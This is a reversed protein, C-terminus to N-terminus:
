GHQGGKKSKATQHAVSPTDRHSPKGLSTIRGGSGTKKNAEFLQPMRDLFVLQSRYPRLLRSYRYRNPVIIQQLKGHEQMYDYLSVFDGDGSVFVAQDFSAFLKAAAYLVIDTDVNGKTKIDGASDRFQVVQKFILTFGARQLQEYLQTNGPVLGIFLYAQSVNYKERLYHRFKRFDLRKGHYLVKGEANKVDRATGLNLNQADIFAYTTLTRKATRHAVSSSDGISTKGKSHKDERPNKKIHPQSPM